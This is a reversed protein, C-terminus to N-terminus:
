QLITELLISTGLSTQFEFPGYVHCTWSHITEVSSCICTEYPVTGPTQYLLFGRRVLRMRQLNGISFERFLTQLTLFSSLTLNPLLTVILHLSQDILPTVTYSWTGSHWTVNLGEIQVKVQLSANYVIIPLHRQMVASDRDCICVFDLPNIPSIFIYYNWVERM